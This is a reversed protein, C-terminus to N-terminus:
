DWSLFPLEDPLRSPIYCCVANLLLNVSKYDCLSIFRHLQICTFVSCRKIYNIYIEIVNMRTMKIKPQFTSICPLSVLM